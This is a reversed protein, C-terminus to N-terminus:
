RTPSPLEAQSAALPLLSRADSHRRGFFYTFISVVAVVSALLACAGFLASLSFQSRRPYLVGVIFGIFMPIIAGIFTGVLPTAVLGTLYTASEGYAGNTRNVYAFAEFIGKDTSPGVVVVSDGSSIFPRERLSLRVPRRDILLTASHNVQSSAGQSSVVRHSSVGLVTATGQLRDSSLSLM